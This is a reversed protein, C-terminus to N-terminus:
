QILVLLPDVYDIMSVTKVPGHLFPLNINDQRNTVCTTQWNNTYYEYLIYETFYTSCCNRHESMKIYFANYLSFVVHKNTTNFCRLILVQDPQNQYDM